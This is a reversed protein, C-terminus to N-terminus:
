NTIAQKTLAFITHLKQFLMESEIFAKKLNEQFKKREDASKDLTQSLSVCVDVLCIM